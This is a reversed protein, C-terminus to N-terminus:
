VKVPPHNLDQRLPFVPVDGVCHRHGCGSVAAAVVFYIKRPGESPAAWSIRLRDFDGGFIAFVGSFADIAVFAHGERREGEHQKM